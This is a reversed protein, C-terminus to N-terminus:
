PLVPFYSAERLAVLEPVTSPTQMGLAYFRAVSPRGDHLHTLAAHELLNDPVPQLGISRSMPLELTRLYRARLLEGALNRLANPDELAASYRKALARARSPQLAFIREDRLAVAEFLLTWSLKRGPAVRLAHRDADIAGELLGTDRRVEGLKIWAYEADPQVSAAHGWLRLESSWAGEYQVTRLGLVVVAILVLARPLPNRARDLLAALTLALGLLPLSLYRDQLPFYMPVLNSVPLMFLAFGLLGALALRQRARHLVVCAVAFLAPAVLAFLRPAGISQTSYMPASAAPWFATGLQHTWTVALRLPAVLADGATARVMENAHWTRLTILGALVALVLKPAQALLARRVSVERAVVDLVLLFLPLPLATTKSLAAAVFCALSLWAARDLVRQSRTHWLLSAAVFLLALVDKRGTAWSVAEVQAPHLGCALTGLCASTVGLGLARLSAYLTCLAACWLALSTAHLVFANDGFWPVDLWYSLLHLPHYAEFHVDGFIALLNRLSVAHVLPDNTLFRADDWSAQLPYPVARAFTAVTALVIAAAPWKQSRPRSATVPRTV